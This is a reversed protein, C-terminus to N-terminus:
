KMRKICQNNTCISHTYNLLILSNIQQLLVSKACLTKNQCKTLLTRYLNGAKTLYRGVPAFGALGHLKVRIASNMAYEQLM